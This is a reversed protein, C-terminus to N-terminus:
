MVTINTLNNGSKTKGAAFRIKVGGEDSLAASAASIDGDYEAAWAQCMKNLLTGGTYYHDPYEAFILVPFTKEGQKPDTITAFDFEVCTVTQGILDETTMKERGAMLDSLSLTKAAIERFNAM